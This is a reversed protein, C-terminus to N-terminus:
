KKTQTVIQNRLFAPAQPRKMIMPGSPGSIGGTASKDSKWYPRSPTTNSVNSTEPQPSAGCNRGQHLLDTRYMKGSRQMSETNQSSKCHHAIKLKLKILHHVSLHNIQRSQNRSPEALYLKRRLSQSLDTQTGISFCQTSVSQVRTSLTAAFSRGNRSASMLQVM